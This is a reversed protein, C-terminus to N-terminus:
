DQDRLPGEKAERYARAIATKLFGNDFFFANEPHEAIFRKRLESVDVAKQTDELSKGARFAAETQQKTTQLLALTQKLYTKDHFVSGHGPVIAQPDLADLKKLAEIWEGIFGGFPYPVPAVLLDGSVLVHVDPVLVVCDGVTHGRGLFLIQVERKGLFVSLRHEFTVTPLAHDAKALEPRFARMEDRVTEYYKRKNEDFPKGSSDTDGAAAKEFEAIIEENVEKKPLVNIIADRTAQTSIIQLGPFARLYLGNGSTHDPHWHTNVLFRVPRTTIRRIEAIQKETLSPFHGSDVVLASDEGVILVSNGTVIAQSGPPSIFAHIGEAVRETAYIKMAEPTREAAHMVPFGGVTAAFLLSILHRPALTTLKGLQIPLPGASSVVKIIAHV